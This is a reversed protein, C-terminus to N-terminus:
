TSHLVVVNQTDIVDVPCGPDHVNHQLQARPSHCVANTGLAVSRASRAIARGTPCLHCLSQGLQQHSHIEEMLVLSSVSVFEWMNGSSKSLNFITLYWHIDPHKWPCQLLWPTSSNSGPFHQIHRKVSANRYITCHASPKKQDLFHLREQNQMVASVSQPIYISICAQYFTFVMFIWHYSAAPLKLWIM